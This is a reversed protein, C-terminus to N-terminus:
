DGPLAGRAARQPRRGEGEDRVRAPVASARERPPGQLHQGRDGRGQVRGGRGHAAAPEDALRAHDQHGRDHLLHGRQPAARVGRPPRHDAADPHLGQLEAAAREGPYLLHELPEPQLQPCLARGRLLLRQPVVAARAPRARRDRARRLQGRRHPVQPRGLAHGRVRGPVVQAPRRQGQLRHRQLRVPHQHGPQPVQPARPARRPLVDPLLDAQLVQPPDQVRLLEGRQHHRVPPAPERPAGQAAGDDDERRAALDRHPVGAHALVLAVPPLGPQAQAGCLGRDDQRAHAALQDHPPLQRPVGMDRRPRRRRYAQHGPPGAGARAGRLLVQGWSGEGHGPDAAGAHPGRGALARLHAPHARDLGLADGRPQPSAAGRLAERALQLRLEHGRVHRPRPPPLARFGHAPARQVQGGM